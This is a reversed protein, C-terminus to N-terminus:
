RGEGFLMKQVFARVESFDSVRPLLVWSGGFDSFDSPNKLIDEGSSNKNIVYSRLDEGKFRQSAEYLKEAEFLGVNTEVGTKYEEYLKSLTPLNILTPLALVKNKFALIVKQQRAARSFDSGEPGLAQRSRSFKLATDGDMKQWGKRFALPEFRCRFEPDNGGCVDDERGPLPYYPDEFDREVFVEIGSVADVARKFSAFDLVVYYHIPLGIMESVVDRALAVGRLSYLANVKARYNKVWVDRPVSFLVANGARSDLSAVIITDTLGTEGENRRDLGLILINTRNDESALQGVGTIQSFVSIPKLFNGLSSLPKVVILSPLLLVFFLVLWFVPSKRSPISFLIPKRSKSYKM